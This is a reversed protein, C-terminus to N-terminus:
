DDSGSGSGSNDSGSGSNASGSGSNDTSDDGSGPGSNDDVETDDGSGPGSNDTSDDGSGPGSNDTSDDGSGPGSNDTGNADDTEPDGDDRLGGHDDGVDHTAPDDAGHRGDDPSSTASPSASASPTPSESPSSDDSSASAAPIVVQPTPTADVSQVAAYAVGGVLVVAVTALTFTTYPRSTM